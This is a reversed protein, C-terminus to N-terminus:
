TGGLAPDNWAEAAQAIRDATQKLAPLAAALGELTTRTTTSTISLGGILHGASTVIPVAACIITPEHEERDFAHGDRRIDAIQARLDAADLTHSTYPHHAQKSLAAELDAEPLHALMAKGVGTCYAPGVKGASSFMEIPDAANRKDMYLVQGDDLRALHVTQGIEASLADLFPRAVPALSFNRWAAHALRMLRPGLTYTGATEDHDLMGQSLLTRLFRYLTAKPYPSDALLETFRVPRGRSAVADLVGLAKGVTGDRNELKDLM